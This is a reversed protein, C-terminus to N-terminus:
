KEKGSVSIKYNYNNKIINSNKIQNFGTYEQLHIFHYNNKEILNLLIKNQDQKKLDDLEYKINYTLLTSSNTKSHKIEKVEDNM